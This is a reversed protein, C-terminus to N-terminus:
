ARLRPEAEPERWAQGDQEEHVARAAAEASELLGRAGHEGHLLRELRQDDRSALFRELRPEPLKRRPTLGPDLDEAVHVIHALQHGRRVEEHRLSAAER